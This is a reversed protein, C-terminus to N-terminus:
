LSFSGVDPLSQNEECGKVPPHAGMLGKARGKYCGCLCGASTCGGKKHRGDWCDRCMPLETVPDKMTPVDFGNKDTPWLGGPYMPKKDKM